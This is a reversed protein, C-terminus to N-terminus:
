NETGAPEVRSVSPTEDGSPRSNMGRTKRGFPGSNSSTKVIEFIFSIPSAPFLNQSARHPEIRCQGRDGGKVVTWGTRVCIRTVTM